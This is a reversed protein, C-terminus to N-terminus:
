LGLWGGFLCGVHHWGSIGCAVRVVAEGTLDDAMAAPEGRAKRQAVAVPWLEQTLAADLHGVLGDPLPTPLKPLSRGMLELSAAQAGSIFPREILHQEREMAYAM